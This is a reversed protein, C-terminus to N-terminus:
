KGSVELCVVEGEANRCYLRGDALAPATWCKGGLVQARALPKFAGTSAEVISLEGRHTLVILKGDAAILGGFGSKETWKVEGTEPDLCRLEAKDSGADGDFGFIGGGILVCPNFHNRMNKNEWVVAAKNDIVKLLACGRGYGSSIFVRDSGVLIPDAANVDYTTKWPHRWIERGDKVAVAVLARAAFLLVYREGGQDFPVAASYGAAEKGSFWFVRGTTRDVATGATGVNLILLNGRVLPSGAFGWEPKGAGTEAALDKKWGVKGTAADLSFLRGQKSLVYVHGGEVTPTASTGGDYYRPALPEEFSFTWLEKGTVADFCYVTDKDEKNGTTYARGDSVSVSAFGKGVSAKWLAKPGNAPWAATWGTEKSTGDLDPGRWRAWDVASVPRALAFCLSGLVAPLLLFIKM